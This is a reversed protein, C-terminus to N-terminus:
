PGRFGPTGSPFFSIDDKNYRITTFDTLKIEEVKNPTETCLINDVKIDRNTIDQDHLYKVACCIQAFVIRTIDYLETVQYKQRIYDFVQKNRVYNEKFQDWKMIQGM